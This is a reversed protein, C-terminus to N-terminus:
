RHGALQLQGSRAGLRLPLPGLRDRGRPPAGGRCPGLRPRSSRAPHGRRHRVDLGRGLRLLLPQVLEHGSGPLRRARDLRGLTGLDDDLHGNDALAPLLHAVGLFGTSLTTGRARVDTALHAAAEAVQDDELLGFDLALAYATQTGGEIRGGTGVYECRFASAVADSLEAYTRAEEARGLRDAMAAVLGSSRAFYATGLLEKSTQAEISLWDGFDYGRQNRWVLDPNAKHVHDVWAAAVPYAREVISPDGYWQYATWPVIVAADGWGASASKLEFGDPLKPVPAVDTVFGHAGFSDRVDALWKDFFGAVHANFCATPAFVQADGMWGMREDRQPCDTPVHLFNGLQGWRINQQLQNVLAASCEFDGTQEVASSVAVGTLDSSHPPTPLGTVEVYRFGHFTFAPEFVEPGGGAAVYTDVARAHRLNDLYLTGGTDLMEAHRLRVITGAPCDLRLRTHGVLNQGLDFVYSGALPETVAVAPVEAVVEPPQCPQGALQGPPGDVLTAASWGALTRRADHVEGELLDGSQIPGFAGEWSDDTAISTRSGDAWWMVLEVLLCPENGFQNRQALPGIAGSYWGDAIEAGVVHDGPSLSDTVDYAQYHVRRRFDTWGPVLESRGVRTGDLHARYIGGASAYLRARVPTRSLTFSRRLTPVPRHDDNQYFPRPRSIWRASWEEPELPGTEFRAQARLETGGDLTLEVSWDYARLGGLPEGQYAVGSAIADLPGSDWIETGADADAVRVRSSHTQVDAEGDTASLEWSLWPGQPGVTLPSRQHNCRLNVLEIM